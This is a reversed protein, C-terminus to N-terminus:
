LPAIVLRSIGSKSGRPIRLDTRMPRPPKPQSWSMKRGDSFHSNIRKRRGPAPMKEAEQFEEPPQHLKKKRKV